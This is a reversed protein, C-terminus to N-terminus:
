VTMPAVISDERARLGAADPQSNSTHANFETM